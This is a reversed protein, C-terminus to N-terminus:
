VLQLQFKEYYWGTFFEINVRAINMRGSQVWEPFRKNNTSSSFTPHAFIM